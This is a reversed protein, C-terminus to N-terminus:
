VGSWPIRRIVRARLWREWAWASTERADLDLRVDIGIGAVREFPIRLAEGAGARLRRALWFARPVLAPHLRRALTTLGSELAAVRPPAGPRLELVIGDVRGMPRGRRDVLRNDLVDRVLDM